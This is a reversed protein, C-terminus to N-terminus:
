TAGEMTEERSHQDRIQTCHYWIQGCQSDRGCLYCGSYKGQNCVDYACKYLGFLVKGRDLFPANKQKNFLWCTSQNPTLMILINQINKEQWKNWTFKTFLNLCCMWFDSRSFALIMFYSITLGLFLIKCSILNRIVSHQTGLLRLKILRRSIEYYESIRLFHSIEGFNRM